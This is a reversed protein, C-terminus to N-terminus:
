IVVVCGKRYAVSCFKIECTAGRQKDREEVEDSLIYRIQLHLDDRHCVEGVSLIGSDLRWDEVSKAVRAFANM